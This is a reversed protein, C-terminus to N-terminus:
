LVRDARVLLSGTGRCRFRANAHIDERNILAGNPGAALVEGLIRYWAISGNRRLFRLVHESRTLASLTSTFMHEQTKLRQFRDYPGCLEGRALVGIPQACDWPGPTQFEVCEGPGGSSGGGFRRMM